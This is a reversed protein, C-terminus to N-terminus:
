EFVEKLIAKTIEKRARAFDPNPESAPKTIRTAFFYVNNSTQAYGVWWGIDLDDKTTWGTKDRFTYPGAQESLMIVKVANMTRKSFPLRNEYLRVLFQIQHQPSIGFAGYNWFNIGPESLDLNGYRCRKLYHVYPKRGLRRALEEYFWVTSNKFASKMDNDRNWADIKVGGAMREVGDWKLIEHEDRVAKQELAILSHIIKFTSAPLTERQADLSDTYIWTNRAYDYLTTSGQVNFRDFHRQLPNQGSPTILFNGAQASWYEWDGAADTSWTNLDFTHTGDAAGPIRFVKLAQGKRDWTLPTGPKCLEPPEDDSLIFCAHGQSGPYQGFIRAIGEPDICVATREDCAIARLPLGDAHSRALFAFLRGQRNRNAFHTDTLVNRLIPIQLFKQSDVTMNPHYPDLLADAANISGNEASFYASGLIAMGASTGGIAINRSALAINIASDVPSNRWYRVYNWQNGGAFWIAEAQAIKRIVYPDYSAEPQNFLITEVSNITVGDLKYMYENYGDGGSARLVLVDGGNARNLFWRMAQDDEGAGGMLCIGGQPTRQADEPNGTFYSVYSQAFLVAPLTVWLLPLCLALLYISARNM